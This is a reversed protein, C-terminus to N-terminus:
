KGEKQKTWPWVTEIDSRTLRRNRYEVSPVKENPVQIYFGIKEDGHKILHKDFIVDVAKNFNEAEVFVGVQFVGDSKLVFTLYFWHLPEKPLDATGARVADEFTTDDM